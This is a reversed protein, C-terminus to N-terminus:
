SPVDMNLETLVMKMDDWVKKRNAPSYSRLLYAPHYTSMLKATFEDTKFDEFRGRLQGITKNTNLLTRAAHAGLAIIVKPRIVNIQQTLYPMCQMIEQPKPDRNAPPRCKIINGIFVDKRALGMAAIIKDLLKGARGIFPIGKADEDAGPAEGVFMIKASPNGDGAVVNTRTKALQCKQCKDCISAIQELQKQKEECTAIKETKSPEAITTDTKEKPSDPPDLQESPNAPLDPHGKISFGGSFFDELEAHQLAAKNHKSRNDIPTEM